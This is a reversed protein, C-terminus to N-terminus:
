GKQDTMKHGQRLITTTELHQWPDTYDNNPSPHSNMDDLFTLM